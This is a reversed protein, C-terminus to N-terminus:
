KSIVDSVIINSIVYDVLEDITGSVSLDTEENFSMFSVNEIFVMGLKCQYNPTEIYKVMICGSKNELAYFNNKLFKRAETMSMDYVPTKIITDNQPILEWGDLTLVYYPQSGSRGYPRTDDEIRDFCVKLGV